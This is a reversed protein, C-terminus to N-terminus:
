KAKSRRASPAAQEGTKWWVGDPGYFTTLFEALARDSEETWTALSSDAPLGYLTSLPRHCRAACSNPMGGDKLTNLTKEPPVVAFSHGSIDYPAGSSATKAMHCETCRSLGVTREPEYPHYTHAEVVNAIKPRSAEINAIDERKLGEFPGFGAHCALCLTNDELKVSVKLKKGDSGDVEMTQRIQSPKSNHVDHCEACTVKHFEFEWKASKMFDNLQQHHQRSTSGDPYVGPKASFFREWVETTMGISPEEKTSEDYPFEHTGAPKSAGRSHCNGCLQNQQMATLTSPNIITAKTRAVVHESGAGHCRECGINYMQKKGSGNLDLYYPNNAPVLDAPPASSVWEGNADKAVSLLATSHCGSCGKDFSKGGAVEKASPTTTFLPTNDAKYWYQTEYLVYSKVSENYQIPSYYNGASLNGTRDTVPIKVVFRQKYSGTGGHVMVVPLELKGITITYGKGGAYGLIPANPKFKDFVSSVKNFDLGQKFDDEGNQDYDVIVGKRVQMSNADNTVTKLGTAHLTDRWASMGTHCGLCIESGVYIKSEGASRGYYSEVLAVMAPNDVVTTPPTDALAVLLPALMLCMIRM